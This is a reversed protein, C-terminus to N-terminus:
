SGQNSAGQEVKTQRGRRTDQLRCTETEQEYKETPSTTQRFNRYRARLVNELGVDSSRHVRLRAKNKPFADPSEGDREEYPHTQAM